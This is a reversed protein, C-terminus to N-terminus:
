WCSTAVSAVTRLTARVTEKNLMDETFRLLDAGLAEESMQLRFSVFSVWPRGAEVLPTVGRSDGTVLDWANEMAQFINKRASAKELVAFRATQSQVPRFIQEVDLGHSQKMRSALFQFVRLPKDLTM